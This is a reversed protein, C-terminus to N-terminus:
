ASPKQSVAIRKKYRDMTMIVVVPHLLKDGFLVMAIHTLRSFEPHIQKKQKHKM